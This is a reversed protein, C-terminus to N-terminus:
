KPWAVCLKEFDCYMLRDSVRHDERPLISSLSTFYEGYYLVGSGDLVAVLYQCDRVMKETCLIVRGDKVDVSLPLDTEDDSNIEIWLEEPLATTWVERLQGDEGPAMYRAVGDDLMVLGEGAPCFQPLKEGQRASITGLVELTELDFFTVTREGGDEATMRLERRDQDVTLELVQATNPLPCINRLSSGDICAAGSVEASAPQYRFAYLGYGGPIQSADLAEGDPTRNKLAFVCVGGGFDWSQVMNWGSIMRRSGDESTQNRYVNASYRSRAAQDESQPSVAVTLPFKGTIPITFFNSFAEVVNQRNPETRPELQLEQATAEEVKAGELYIEPVIPYYACWDRLDIETEVVDGKENAQALQQQCVKWIGQPDDVLPLNYDGLDYDYAAGVHINLAFERWDEFSEWAANPDFSVRAEPADGLTQTIDWALKGNEWVARATLVAGEAAAPDGQITHQTVTVAEKQEGVAHATWLMAAGGLLVLALLLALLKKM